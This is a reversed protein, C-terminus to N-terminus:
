LAVAQRESEFRAVPAGAAAHKTVKLAGRRRVPEVQEALYVIGMGGEGLVGVTRYPGYSASQSRTRSELLNDAGRLLIDALSGSPADFALLSEVEARVEPDVPHEDCYRARDEPSLDALERFLALVEDRM